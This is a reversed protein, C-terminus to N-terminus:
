KIEFSILLKYYEYGIVFDEQAMPCTSNTQFSRKYIIYGGIYTGLRDIFFM